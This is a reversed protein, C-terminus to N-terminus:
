LRATKRNATPSTGAGTRAVVGEETEVGTEAETEAEVEAANAAKAEAVAEKETRPSKESKPGAQATPKRGPWQTRERRQKSRKQPTAPLSRTTAALACIV